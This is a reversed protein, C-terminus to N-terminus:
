PAITRERPPVMGGGLMAAPLLLLLFALHYWLPMADWYAAQVAIGVILLLIGLYVAPRNDPTKAMRATLWGALVSFLVSLALAILLVTSGTAVDDATFADPFAVQLVQNSGLWLVSWVVFGVIV